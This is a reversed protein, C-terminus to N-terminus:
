STMFGLQLALASAIAALCFVHDRYISRAMRSRLEAPDAGAGLRVANPVTRGAAVLIAAGVLALSAWGAWRPDDGRAIEVVIAAITTLMVTAILRNMPRASTTVRRYYASISALVEEPLDDRGHGLTQVDFMLDFWLVALLFGGGAAAFASM